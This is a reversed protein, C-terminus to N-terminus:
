YKRYFSGPPIVMGGRMKTSRGGGAGQYGYGAMKALSAATSAGPIPVYKLAKSVIGTRKAFNNVTRVAKKIKDAFGKGYIRSIKYRPAKEANAIQNYSDIHLMALDCFGPTITCIGNSEFAIYLSYTLGDDFMNLPRFKVHFKFTENTIKMGGVLTQEGGSCLDIGPIMRLVSGVGFFERDIKEKFKDAGVNKKEIYFHRQTRTWDPYTRDELGNRLAMLYLDKENYNHGLKSLNGYDVEIGTIQAYTNNYFCRYNSGYLTADNPAVWIYISNPMYDLSYIDSEITLIKEPNNIHNAVSVPTRLHSEYRRYEVFDTVFPLATPVQPTAIDFVLYAEIIDVSMYQQLNTELLSSWWDIADKKLEKGDVTIKQLLSREQAFKQLTTHNFIFMNRLNNFNYELDINSINNMTKSTGKTSYYDLPEAMVPERMDFTMTGSVLRFPVKKACDEHDGGNGLKEVFGYDKYTKAAADVTINEFKSTIDILCENGFDGDYTSGINVFPSRAGNAGEVFEYTTQVNPKRHPCFPASEKLVDQKWYEMRQNLTQTPYCILDRNNIKLHINDTCQTLPFPRLCLLNDLGLFGDEHLNGNGGNGSKANCIYPFNTFTVKVKYDLWWKMDILYTSGPTKINSFKLQSPNTYDKPIKMQNWNRAGIYAIVNKDYDAIADIDVRPDTSKLLRFPFEGCQNSAIIKSGVGDNLAAVRGVDPNLDSVDMTAM